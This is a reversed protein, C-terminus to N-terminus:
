ATEERDDAAADTSDGPSPAREDRGPGAGGPVSGGGSRGDAADGDPRPAMAIRGPVEVRGPASDRQQAIDGVGTSVASGDGSLTHGMRRAKTRLYHENDATPTIEIGVRETISLGFGPLAARKAPNNTLLRLTSLGLDVLIMAGTGYDRDDAPLGLALNADVTDHGDDQLQYAQLKHLLGIGRGEHGRLYVIVGEGEDAIRAMALDLQPGCDCRLSRFVDGTLCESHMRVLVDDKGEPHGLVMAVSETGDATSRYGLMRWEGYPTPVRAEAVREVLEERERRYAVLDAITVLLLDHETAFAALQPLRQMSGDDNVLEAILATPRLGALMALDVSAETHGPRRLVGGPNYRLPFLHGPRTVDSPTSAPDALVRATRARDAASIGTSVGETADVSVTYATGKPDQNDVVMLPVALRDLDEGLMPACIVGSTHKVFFGLTESTAREAAMVLDGENERDEDDVVVVVEGRGIAAIADPITAFEAV